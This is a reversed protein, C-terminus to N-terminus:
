EVGVIEYYAELSPSKAKNVHYDPGIRLHFSTSDCPSWSNKPLNEIPIDDGDYTTKNVTSGAVIRKGPREEGENKSSSSM